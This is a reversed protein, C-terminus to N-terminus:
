LAVPAVLLLPLLLLALLTPPTGHVLAVIDGVSTDDTFTGLGDVGCPTSVDSNDGDNDGDSDYAGIFVDDEDDSAYIDPDGATVDIRRAEQQRRKEDLKDAMQSAFNDFGLYQASFLLLMKQLKAEFVNKAESYRGCGSDCWFLYDRLSEIFALLLRNRCEAAFAVSKPNEEPLLTRTDKFAGAYVVGAPAYHICESYVAGNDKSTMVLIGNRCCAGVLDGLGTAIITDSNCEVRPPSAYVYEGGSADSPEISCIRVAAHPVGLYRSFLMAASLFFPYLRDHVHMDPMLKYATERDLAMILSYLSLRAIHSSMKSNDGPNINSAAPPAMSAVVGPLGDNENSSAGRPALAAAPSTDVEMGDAVGIQDRGQHSPNSKKLHEEFTSVVKEFYAASSDATFVDLILPERKEKDALLQKFNIIEGRLCRYIAEFIKKAATKALFHFAIRSHHLGYSNNKYICCTPAVNQM